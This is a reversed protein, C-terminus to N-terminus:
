WKLEAGLRGGIGQEHNALEANFSAFVALGPGRDLYVSGSLRALNRAAPAGFVNFSVAPAAELNASLGRQPSFEHAWAARLLPSLTWGQGMLIASSLQLGLEVPQASVTQGIFNLGLPASGQRLNESFSPAFSWNPQYAAFPTVDVMQTKFTYGSELRGSLVGDYFEANANANRGLAAVNRATTVNYGGYALVGMAYFGSWRGIAYLAAQGGDATGSSQRDPLSFTSGSGGMAAGLLIDSSVVYEAGATGGWSQTTLTAAGIAADGGLREGSGTASAWSRWPSPQSEPQGSAVAAASGYAAMRNDLLWYAGHQRIGEVFNANADVVTQQSGTVGEGSLSTYAGAISSASVNASVLSGFFASTTASTTAALLSNNYGRELANAFAQQNQNLGPVSNFPLRTLVASVSNGDETANALLFPSTTAVQDFGGRLADTAVLLNSYSTTNAYLGSQPTLILSGAIQATGTVLSDHGGAADLRLGLSGTNTQVFTGSIQHTTGSGAASIALSGDNEFRADPGATLIVQGDIKGYNVVLSGSGTPGSSIATAGAAATLVGYNLLVGTSGDMEVAASGLGTVSIQGNNTIVGYSSASIGPSSSGSTAISGNNVVDDGAFTSVGPANPGSTTLQGNNQIPNYIGPIQVSYGQVIDSANTYVGIVEGQYASNASVVKSGPPSLAIWTQSGDAGIHLVGAHAVANIDLWDAVLNYTGARGGGSIGEFHTFVAGPANYTTYVGTTQNYIYGQTLGGLGPNTYGGAILNGWVGYATTSIAGPKNITSYAGTSINYLFANGTALKTDYNGVVENGFTSHPITNLTTAGPLSPYQLTILKNTAAAAGDYLYGLDNGGSSSTQYSGVVRLIGGYSGFSPGYPSNDIANPFNVGSSTAVPFPTFVGTSSTYLLGGTGVGPIIYNVTLTYGRIGTPLSSYNHYDLSKYVLTPLAQQAFAATASLNAVALLAIYINQKEM